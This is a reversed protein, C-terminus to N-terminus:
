AFSLYARSRTRMVVRLSVNSAKALLILNDATGGARKALQLPTLDDNNRHEVAQPYIKLLSDVVVKNVKQSAAIHIPFNGDSDAIMAHNPFTQILLMKFLTPIEELSLAAHVPGLTITQVDDISGYGM